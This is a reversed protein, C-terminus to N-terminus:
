FICPTVCVTAYLAGRPRGVDACFGWFQAASRGHTCTGERAGGISGAQSVRYPLTLVPKSHGYVFLYTFCGWWPIPYISLGASASLMVFAKAGVQVPSSHYGEDAGGVTAIPEGTATGDKPHPVAEFEVSPVEPM